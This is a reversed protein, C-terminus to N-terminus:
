ADDESRSTPTNVAVWAARVRQLGPHTGIFTYEDDSPKRMNGPADEDFIAFEGCAICFSLDGTAPPAPDNGLATTANCHEQCFPCEAKFDYTKMRPKM